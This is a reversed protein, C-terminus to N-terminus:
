SFTARIMQVNSSQFLIFIFDWMHSLSKSFAIIVAVLANADTLLVAQEKVQTLAAPV